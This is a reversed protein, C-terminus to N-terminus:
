IRIDRTLTSLTLRIDEIGGQQTAESIGAIFTSLPIGACRGSPWLTQTYKPEHTIIWLPIKTTPCTELAQRPVGPPSISMKPSTTCVEEIPPPRTELFPVAARPPQSFEHSPLSHNRISVQTATDSLAGSSSTAGCTGEALAVDSSDQRGHPERGYTSNNFAYKNKKWFLQM